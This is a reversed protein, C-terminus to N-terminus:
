WPYILFRDKSRLIRTIPHQISKTRATCRMGKCSPTVINSYVTSQAMFTDRLTCVSERGRERERERERERGGCLWKRTRNGRPRLAVCLVVATQNTGERSLVAHRLQIRTQFITMTCIGAASSEFNGKGEIVKCSGYKERGKTWPRPYPFFLFFSLLSIINISVIPPVPPRYNLM